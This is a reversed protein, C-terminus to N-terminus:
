KDFGSTADSVIYVAGSHVLKETFDAESKGLLESAKLRDRMDSDAALGQMVETWFKQRDARTAIAKDLQKAQGKAVAAAIEPKKLLDFGQSGATKKSYGARIAAQTANFDILYEAIFQRQKPNLNTASRPSPLTGARGGERVGDVGGKSGM